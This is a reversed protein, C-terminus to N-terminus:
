EERGEEGEEKEEREERLVQRMRRRKEKLVELGREEVRIEDVLGHLRALVQDLYLECETVHPPPVARAVEGLGGRM